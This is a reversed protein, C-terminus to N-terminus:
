LFKTFLQVSVSDQLLFSTLSSAIAVGHVGKAGALSNYLHLALQGASKKTLYVYQHELDVQACWTLGFCSLNPCIKLHAAAKNAWGEFLWTLILKKPYLNNNNTTCHVYYFSEIPGYDTFVM